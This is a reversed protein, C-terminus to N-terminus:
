IRRKDVLNEKAGQADGALPSVCEVKRAATIQAHHKTARAVGSIWFTWYLEDLPHPRMISAGVGRIVWRTTGFLGCKPGSSEDSQVRM